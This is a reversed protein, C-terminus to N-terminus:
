TGVMFSYVLVELPNFTRLLRKSFANYLASGFCGVLILANDFLYKRRFIHVTRWDVDSVLLVDAIALEFSIWLLRSMEEGLLVTALLAILVPIALTIVSANSALSRKVGSTLGIRGYENFAAVFEIGAFVTESYIPHSGRRLHDAIMSQWNQRVGMWNELDARVLRKPQGTCRVKVQKRLYRKGVPLDYQVHVTLDDRHFLLELCRDSHRLVEARGSSSAFLGGVEFEIALDDNPLEFEEGTMRSRFARSIVKGNLLQISLQIANNGIVYSGENAGAFLPATVTLAALQRAWERRSIRAAM